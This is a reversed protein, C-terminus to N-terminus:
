DFIYFFLRDGGEHHHHAHSEHTETHWEGATTRWPRRMAKAWENREKASPRTSVGNWDNGTEGSGFFM